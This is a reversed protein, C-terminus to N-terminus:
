KTSTSLALTKIPRSTRIDFIALRKDLDALSILHGDFRWDFMLREPMCFFFSFHCIQCHRCYIVVSFNLPDKMLIAKKELNVFGFCNEHYKTAIIPTEPIPNWLCRRFAHSM